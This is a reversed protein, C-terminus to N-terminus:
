TTLSKLFGPFFYEIVAAVLVFLIVFGVFDSNDPEPPWTLETQCHGCISARHPITFRCAPCTSM